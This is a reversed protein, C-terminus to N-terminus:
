GKVKADKSGRLRGAICVFAEIVFTVIMFLVVTEKVATIWGTALCIKELREPFNMLMAIIGVNELWDLMLYIVSIGPLCRLLSGSSTVKKTLLSCWGFMFAMLCPPYFIDLPMVRTLYFNRGAEGMRTLWDYAFDVSYRTEYDLIGVGGSVRLLGAVGLPSFDIIWFLVLFLLTVIICTKLTVRDVLSCICSKM